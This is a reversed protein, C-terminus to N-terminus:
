VGAPLFKEMLSTQCLFTVKLKAELRDAVKVGTEHVLNVNAVLPAFAPNVTAKGKKGQM